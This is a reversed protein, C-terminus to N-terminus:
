LTGLDQMHGNSYLFAHRAGASTDAGGTVQGANNIAYAESWSGGLTGLNTIQGNSYLVAHGFDCHSAGSSRWSGVAQGANNLGSFAVYSNPTPLSILTSLDTVSYLIDASAPFSGALLLGVWLGSLVRM